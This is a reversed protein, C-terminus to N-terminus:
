VVSFLSDYGTTVMNNREKNLEARQAASGKGLLFMIHFYISHKTMNAVGNLDERILLIISRHPRNITLLVGVCLRVRHSSLITPLRLMPQIDTCCQLCCNSYGIFWSYFLDTTKIM